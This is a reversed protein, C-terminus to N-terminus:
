GGAAWVRLWVRMADAELKAMDSLVSTQRHTENVKVKFEEVMRTAALVDTRGAQADDLAAVEAQHEYQLQGMVTKFHHLLATLCGIYIHAGERRIKACIRLIAPKHAKGTRIATEIDSAIASECIKLRIEAPLALFPSQTSSGAQSLNAVTPMKM